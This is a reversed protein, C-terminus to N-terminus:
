EAVVASVMKVVTTPAETPRVPKTTVTEIRTTCIDVVVKEARYIRIQYRSGNELSHQRDEGSREDVRVRQKPLYLAALYWVNADRQRPQEEPQSQEEEEDKEVADHM